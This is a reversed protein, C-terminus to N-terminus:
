DVPGSFREGWRLRRQLKDYFSHPELQILKATYESKGIDVADGPQLREMIQGDMTLIMESTIDSDEGVIKVRENDSIVLSRANLTHPCIPTIILVCVDPHVVPGGASLSYATSGTPTSVILGDAMYTVIFRGDVYTHLKLMRAKGGKSVVSDNLGYHRGIEVGGRTVTAQLVFRESVLYDGDLIRGLATKAEKPHIETIFGYQGFNIGMIPTGAMAALRGWRLMSGDGGLVLLMDARFVDEESPVGVKPKEMAIAIDETAIARVSRLSLWDALESALQIAEKKLPNPALGITKM